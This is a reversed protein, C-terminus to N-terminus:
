ACHYTCGVFAAKYSSIGSNINNNYQEETLILGDLNIYRIDYQKEYIINNQHDLLEIWQINGNNDLENEQTNPNKKVTLKPITLPNFECDMTIKAVTYNHLLDDNQKMGYGPIISSTIYDGSQLAGNIDCVWIGGEGVSNIFARTDGKDKNLITVFAGYEELRKDPDEITSIVGFVSKDNSTNTIAVIPLSESITIADKGTAIGNSMRIYKNQNASVILGEYNLLNSYSMDNVFCKHQGTFNMQAQAVNDQIFAPETVTGNRNVAFYLDNDTTTPTATQNGIHWGYNETTNHAIYLQKDGTVAVGTRGHIDLAAYPVSTRIGVNALPYWATDSNINFVTTGSNISGSSGQQLYTTTGTRGLKGWSIVNDDDQYLVIEAEGTQKAIVVIRADFDSSGINTASNEVILQASNGGSDAGESAFIHLGGGNNRNVSTGIGLNGTIIGNGIVDIKQRTFTTGIGINGSIIASGGEIDLLQRPSTTGVGVSGTTYYTNNGNQNWVTLLSNSISVNQYVYGIQPNYEQVIEPWVIIDVLAGYSVPNTLTITYNTRNPSYNYSIDLTYDTINSNYYTLLSNGVFVQVNSALGTYIGSTSVNFTSQVIDELYFVKRIPNIQLNQKLGDNQGFTINGWLRLNSTQISGDIDLKYQPNTIGIGVNGKTDVTIQTPLAKVVSNANPMGIASTFIASLPTSLESDKYYGSKVFISLEPSWCVNNAGGVYIDKPKIAIWNIGDSSVMTDYNTTGNDSVACFLSLEPAWCIGKWENNIPATRATWNIGNTSTMIRNTGSYAVAAFLSLEPSWCVSSWTNAEPASRNTWTIGNPSTMIRNTGLYAVACFLSLEPSWCVSKWSSSSATRITWTIGDPSTMVRAGSGIGVAVFLALEPSWCVSQWTTNNSVKTRTTWNIGDSSTIIGNAETLSSGEGVAVFIKQEPSWCVSYWDNLESSDRATWSIGDSSTVIFNGSGFGDGTGIAVFLSLEASWAISLWNDTDNPISRKTWNQPCNIASAYGTRTRKNLATINVGNVTGISSPPIVNSTASIYKAYQNSTYQYNTSGIHIGGTTTDKTITTGDLDITNGSLYIDRWRLNSTGLDYVINSNPVINGAVVLKGISANNTGIGVNGDIYYLQAGEINSSWQSSTGGGFVAPTNNQYLTGTYNIDGVVHLLGVPISTGIGVNGNSITFVDGIIRSM